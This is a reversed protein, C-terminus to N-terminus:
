FICNRGSTEGKDDSLGFRMQRSRFRCIEVFDAFEATKQLLDAGSRPSVRPWIQLNKVAFNTFRCFNPARTESECRHAAVLSLVVLVLELLILISSSTTAVVAKSADLLSSSSCYNARQEGTAASPPPLVRIPRTRPGLRPPAPQARM